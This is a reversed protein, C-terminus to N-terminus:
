AVGVRAGGGAGAPDREDDAVGADPLRAHEALEAATEAVRRRGPAFAMAGGVPGRRREQRDGVAEAAMERDVVTVVLRRGVGLQRARHGLEPAPEFPRQGEQALDERERGAVLPDRREIGRAPPALGEGRHLREHVPEGLARREHEDDLVQM